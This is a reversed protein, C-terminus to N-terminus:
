DDAGKMRRGVMWVLVAFAGLREVVEMAAAAAAAPLLVLVSASGVVVAVEGRRRWCWRSIRDSSTPRKVVM